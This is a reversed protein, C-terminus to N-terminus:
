SWDWLVVVWTGFHDKFKHIIQFGIRKHAELSRPNKVAITTVVFDYGKQMYQKHAGFLKRFIGQGRYDKAICVQGMVYYDYTKLPKNQYLVADTKNLVMEFEPHVTRAEKPVVLAYGVVQEKAFAIIGPHFVHLQKLLTVPYEWSVYGEKELTTQDPINKKLNAENLNHIGLLHTVKALRIEM